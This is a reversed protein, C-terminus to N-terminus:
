ICGSFAYDNILSVNNPINITTLGSCEDFAHCGINTLSSPIIFSTLNSANRFANSAIGLTGEKLIIQTNSPMKGKYEYAVRGAYILGDPQHIYWGTNHFAQVGISAVNDPITISMLENLGFFAEDGISTVGNPITSKKCGAILTNSATEIIANCGNRSDYKRNADDVEISILENCSSLVGCGISSVTNPFTITVLKSCGSFAYDGINTVNNGITLSTLGSCGAFASQGISLISNPIVLSTLGKCGRFAQDDIITVGTGISISKLDKCDRFAYRGITVVSNPISISTLASCKCFASDGISVVKAKLKTSSYNVEEPIVIDGKYGEKSKVVELKQKNNDIYKYFIMIGDSNEIAIDYPLFGTNLYTILQQPSGNFKNLQITGENSKLILTEGKLSITQTFGDTATMKNGNITYRITWDNLEYPGYTGGLLEYEIATNGSISYVWDDELTYWTGTIDALSFDEDDDSCSVFGFSLLAVM